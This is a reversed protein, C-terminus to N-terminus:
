VWRGSLLQRTEIRELFLQKPLTGFCSPCVPNERWADAGNRCCNADNKGLGGLRHVYRRDVSCYLGDQVPGDIWAGDFAM